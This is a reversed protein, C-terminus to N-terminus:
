RRAKRRDNWTIAAILVIILLGAASVYLGHLVFLEYCFTRVTGEATKPCDEAATLDATYVKQDYDYLSVTGIADGAATGANVTDPLDVVVHLNGDSPLDMTVTEPATFILKKVSSDRVRVEGLQQGATLATQKSYHERFWNYIVAADDISAPYHQEKYGHCDVLILNMGSEQASSALTYLGELTYGSKGCIFGPIDFNQYLPNEQNIYQLVGNTMGLGQKYHKVPVSTHTLTSLVKVMEENQMCYKMLIAMDRCTSYHNDDHLGTTNVFHTGTMGLEQAKQNMLDVFAEESGSVYFALARSCEAGSPLLTGYLLDELTPDDGALFGARNAQAEILGAMIENTIMYKQTLDPIHEIALIGTMLKTMSAPYMQDTSRTDWLVQGTDADELFVYESMVSPLERAAFAATGTEESAGPQCGSMLLVGALAIEAWRGVKKM